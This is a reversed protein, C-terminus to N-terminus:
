FKWKSVQFSVGSIRMRYKVMKISANYREAIQLEDLRQKCCDLLAERPIQLCGGLYIAEEEDQKNYNRINSPIAIGRFHDPVKHDCIIHALEHMLDSQQRAESHVSNFVILKQGACNCMTLASWGSGSRFLASADGPYEKVDHIHVCLHDALVHASLFETPAVSLKKRFDIAENEAWSKFGRRLPSPKKVPM